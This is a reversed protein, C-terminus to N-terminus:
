RRERGRLEHHEERHEPRYRQLSYPHVYERRNVFTRGWQHNNIIVTHLGWDFHVAGWGWPAFAAGLTIGPGFSIAAAIRFGPRPPGFVVLPDYVPVFYFAPNVPVIEIAPGAPIVQIQGNSRLYGFEKAKQRMRQVADMVQDHQALFADGLRTTGAPDRAMMDLVSPFPLLAQVSPDWPLHDESIARALDDGKLYSHQDAWRAADPIEDPFTAAALTQALLPDPYLAIPAVLRDLEEPPFPTPPAYQGLVLLPGSALAAAIMLIPLRM